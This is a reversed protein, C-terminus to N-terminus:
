RKGGVIEIREAGAGRAVDLAEVVRGYTVDGEARVFVTRDRRALLAERLGEGLASTTVM